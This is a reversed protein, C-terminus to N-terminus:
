LIDKSRNKSAQLAENARKLETIDRGITLVSQVEKGDLSMEPVFHALICRAGQPLSAAIIEFSAPEATKFVKKLYNEFDGMWDWSLDLESLTKGTAKEVTILGKSFKELTPNVYLLRSNRDFRAILDPSNEVLAKFKQESQNLAVQAKIRDSVDNQIGVFYIVRGAQDRIPSILLENWFLSGDKRYNRLVVRCEREEKIARRLEVLGDQNPDDGQMLRCNKGLVEERSFGTLKEFGKSVYIIPNNIKTADTILVGNSSAEIAQELLWSNEYNGPTPLGQDSQNVLTKTKEQGAPLLNSNNESAPDTLPISVTFTTGQGEVSEFNIQGQHALVSQKVIALGFGTGGISGVNSARQFPEFLISQDKAPIGIGQDKIRFLVKDIQWELELEVRGGQGSYKLANSLLNNLIYSLLKQDLYVQSKPVKGIEVFWISKNDETNAKFNKILDRCIESLDTKSRNCELKGNEARNFTLIDDILGTIKNASQSIRSLIEIKKEESWKHSYFQLLETSSIIASLPTRFEHSATAILRDKLEGLEKEKELSRRLSQEVQKRETLDTCVATIRALKGEQYIGKSSIYLYHLQGDKGVMEVEYSNDQGASRLLLEAKLRAHFNLPVIDFPTKGTLEEISYGLMKAISPNVYTITFAPNLVILGQGMTEMVQMAFEQERELAKEAQRRETVDTAVGIVSIVKGNEDKIPANFTDLTRGGIEVLNNFSEGALVRRADAVVQPNNAYLEFVSKGISQNPQVGLNALAKGATFTYKGEHDLIYLVLPANNVVTQLREAIESVEIFLRSRHLALSVYEGLAELIRLDNPTLEGAVTSEINLTGVVKQQDFLPVCIESVINRGARIFDPDHLVDPIFAAKGTRAVRGNVGQNLTLTKLDYSHGIQHQLVLTDGQLLFISVQSYGFEQVIAEVIKGILDPLALTQSLTNRVKHLLSLEQAQTTASIYLAKYNAESAQLEAQAQKRKNIDRIIILGAYIEGQDNRAPLAQMEYINNNFDRETITEQGNLAAKYIPAVNKARNVGLVEWLTKGQFDERMFGVQDSSLISGEALFYRLDHDFMLVALDPINRVLTRYEVESKKLAEEAAKRRSINRCAIQIEVVNGSLPDSITHTALELWLYEGSKARFRFSAVKLKSNQLALSHAKQFAAIDEEHVFNYVSQGVLEEPAYNLVNQSASSVYLLTGDPSSVVIIDKSNQALLKFRKESDTLKEAMDKGQVVLENKLVQTVLRSELLEMVFYALEALQNRQEESFSYHPQTDIVCLAGLNYGDKTRLTAGAYFRIHPEGTVLPNHAFRADETADAVVMVESSLITYDCFAVDRSTQQVDLGFCSKFWQRDEDLLSIFALPMDFIRAAFATLRDYSQEAATDLVLYRKLAALRLQEDSGMSVDTM